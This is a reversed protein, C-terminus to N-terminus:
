PEQTKGGGGRIKGCAKVLMHLKNNKAWLLNKERPRERMNSKKERASVNKLMKKLPSYILGM